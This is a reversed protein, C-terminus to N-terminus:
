MERPFLTNFVKTAIDDKALAQDLDNPKPFRFIQDFWDHRPHGTRDRYHKILEGLPVPRTSSRVGNRMAPPCVGCSVKGFAGRHEGLLIEEQLDILLSFPLKAQVEAEDLSRGNSVKAMRVAFEFALQSKYEDSLKSPRLLDLAYTIDKIFGRSRMQLITRDQFPDHSQQELPSCRHDQRSHLDWSGTVECHDTILPLNHPWEIQHWLSKYSNAKSIRWEKFDGTTTESHKKVIHPVLDDFSFVPGKEKGGCIPCKYVRETPETLLYNRSAFFPKIKLELVRRADDILLVYQAEGYIPAPSQYRKRLEKLVLAVADRASIKTLSRFSWIEQLVVDALQYLAFLEPPPRQDDARSMRFDAYKQYQGATTAAVPRAGDVAIEEALARQEELKPRLQDWCIKTPERPSQVATQFAHIYRLVEWELPPQMELAREKFYDTRRKRLNAANVVKGKRAKDFFAELRGLGAMMAQAKQQELRFWSDLSDGAGNERESKAHNYVARFADTDYGPEGAQSNVKHYHGWSDLSAHPLCALINPMDACTSFMTDLSKKPSFRKGLCSTCFRRQFLWYVKRGQGQCGVGQCGFGDILDSYQMELFCTQRAQWDSDSLNAPRPLMDARFLSKPLPPCDAGFTELRSDRWIQPYKNLLDNFRKDVTRLSVLTRPTCYAFVRTWIDEHIYTKVPRNVRLVPRANQRKSQSDRAKKARKSSGAVLSAREGEAQLHSVSDHAEATSQQSTVSEESDDRTRKQPTLAPMFRLSIPRPPEPVSTFTKIGVRPQPQEPISTSAHIGTVPLPLLVNPERHQAQLDQQNIVSQVDHATSKAKGKNKTKGKATQKTPKISFSGVGVLDKNSVM